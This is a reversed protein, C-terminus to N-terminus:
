SFAAAVAAQMKELGTKAVLAADQKWYEPNFLELSLTGRFGSAHLDRLIQQLPAIGEGPYVRDADSITERPPQAPYDNMHFVHIARGNILKLGHFDSGGKHIHYVDPLLCADARGSEVAVYMLEGMRSISQSFGWLELQPTVERQAGLELLRAYREAAARLSLDSQRTAGAPPAAIRMGGIQRVADMDRKATELGAARAADDDVIWNAFGIASVVTLGADAIRKRLDALSGGAKVYEELERIWPEIATYGAAAAIEVEEVISLKQGRITSTNLCFQFDNRPSAAPNAVAARATGQCAANATAVAAVAATGRWLLERRHMIETMSESEAM